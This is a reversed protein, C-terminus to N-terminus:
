QGFVRQFDVVQAPFAAAFKESFVLFHHAAVAATDLNKLGMFKEIDAKSAQGVAALKGWVLDSDAMDPLGSYEPGFNLAAARAFEYVAPNFNIGSGMIARLVHEASLIVCGDPEFLESAHNFPFNPSIFHRPYVVVQEFKELLFVERRFTVQVASAAIALQVDPPLEDEPWEAATWDTAERFLFTRTRFKGKEAAPLDRYFACHKGLWVRHPRELDPPNRQWWWWNIQPSFIFIIAAVVLCPVVGRAYSTDVEWALYLFILIALLFPFLLRKAPM